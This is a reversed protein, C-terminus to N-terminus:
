PLRTFVPSTDLHGGIKCPSTPVARHALSGKTKPIVPMSSPTTWQEGHIFTVKQQGVPLCPLSFTSYASPECCAKERQAKLGYVFSCDWLRQWWYSIRFWYQTKWNATTHMQLWSFKDCHEVITSFKFYQTKDKIQLWIWRLLWLWPGAIWLILLCENWSNILLCGHQITLLAVLWYDGPFSCPLVCLIEHEQWDGCSCKSSIMPWTRSFLVMIYIYSM